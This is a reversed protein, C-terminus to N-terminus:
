FQVVILRVLPVGLRLHIYRVGGMVTTKVLLAAMCGLLVAMQFVNHLIEDELAVQVFVHSMIVNSLVVTGSMFRRPVSFLPEQTLDNLFGRGLLDYMGDNPAALALSRDTSLFGM